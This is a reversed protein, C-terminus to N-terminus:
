PEFSPLDPLISRCGKAGLDQARKADEITRLTDKTQIGCLVTANKGAAKVVTDLLLPWEEDSLDPGEGM